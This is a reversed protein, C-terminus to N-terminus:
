RKNLDNVLTDTQDSLNKDQSIYSREEDSLWQNAKLKALIAKAHARRTDLLSLLTALKSQDIGEAQRLAQWTPIVQDLNDALKQWSDIDSKSYNPPVYGGLHAVVVEVPCNKIKGIVAEVGIDQYEKSFLLGKTDPFELFNELLEDAEYFGRTYLEAFIINHYGGQRIAMSLTVGSRTAEVSFDDSKIMAQGRIRSSATLQDNFKFPKLNKELRKSNILRTFEKGDLTATNAFSVDNNTNRWLAQYDTQDTWPLVYKIDSESVLGLEYRSDLSAKRNDGLVFVSGPPIVKESCDPFIDSGYTSRPKATYPEDLMRGNLYVYGDSLQLKDGPMAIVRKVFGAPEGYKETSLKQTKTNDFEIIDGRSLTYAFLKHGFLTLGGPYQRMKPGAVVEQARKVDTEGEGKPFTPYMSGTGAILIKEQILGVSLLLSRTSPALFYASILAVAMLLIFRITSKLM